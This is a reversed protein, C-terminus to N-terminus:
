IKNKMGLITPKIIGDKLMKREGFCDPINGGWTLIREMANTDDHAAARRFQHTSYCERWIYWAGTLLVAIVSSATLIILLWKKM